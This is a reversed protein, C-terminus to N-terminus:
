VSELGAKWSNTGVSGDVTFGNNKPFAMTAGETEDGIIGAREVGVIIQWIRVAKGKSGRKLTPMNYDEETKTETVPQFGKIDFDVYCESMDCGGNVGAVTARSTYQHM